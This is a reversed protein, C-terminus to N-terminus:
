NIDFTQGQMFWFFFDYGCIMEWSDLPKDGVEVDKSFCYQLLAGCDQSCAAM